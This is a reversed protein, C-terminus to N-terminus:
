PTRRTYLVRHANGQKDRVTRVETNCPHGFRRAETTMLAGQPPALTPTRTCPNAM